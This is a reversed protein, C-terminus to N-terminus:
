SIGCGASLTMWHDSASGIGSPVAKSSTGCLISTSPRRVSARLLNPRRGCSRRSKSPLTPAAAGAWNTCSTGTCPRTSARPLRHGRERQLTAYTRHGEQWGGAFPVISTVGFEFTRSTGSLMIPGGPAANVRGAGAFRLCVDGTKAAESHSDEGGASAPTFFEGDIAAFEIHGQSYKGIVYGREGDGWSWAESPRAPLNDGNWNDPVLDAATYGTMRYDKAQGQFRRFPIGTLTRRDAGDRWSRTSHDFLVKRFGFRFSEVSHEDRGFRHRLTLQEDIRDSGHFLTFRHSLELDTPGLAGFDFRGILTLSTEGRAHDEEVNWSTFRVSRSELETGTFGGPGPSALTLRYCYDADAVVDGTPRHQLMGPNLRQGIGARLLWSRNSFELFPTDGAGSIEITAAGGPSQHEDPRAM